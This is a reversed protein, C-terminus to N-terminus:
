AKRRAAEREAHWAKVETWNFVLTREITAVPEPFPPTTTPRRRWQTVTKRDVKLRAAIETAGVLDSPDVSKAV